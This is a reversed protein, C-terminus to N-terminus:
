LQDCTCLPLLEYASVRVSTRASLGLSTLKYAATRKGHHVTELAANSCRRVFHSVCLDTRSTVWFKDLPLDESCVSTGDRTATNDDALLKLAFQM